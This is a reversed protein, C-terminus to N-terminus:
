RGGKHYRRNHSYLAAWCGLALLVLAGALDLWTAVRAGAKDELGSLWSGIGGLLGQPAVVVPVPQGAPTFVNAAPAGGGSVGVPGPARDGGVAADHAVYVVEGVCSILVGLALSIAALLCVAPVPRINIM